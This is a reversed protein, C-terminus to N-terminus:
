DLMSPKNEPKGYHTAKICSHPRNPEKQHKVSAHLSEAHANMNM